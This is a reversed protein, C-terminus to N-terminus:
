YLTDNDELGLTVSTHAHLGSLLYVPVCFSNCGRIIESALM